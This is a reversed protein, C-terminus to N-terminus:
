LEESLFESVKVQGNMLMPLLWDRLESLKQSEIDNLIIKEIIPDILINFKTLVEHSSVHILSNTADLPSLNKQSSGTAINELRNREEKRQFLLYIFNKFIDDCLFKGVRQNLLLNEETVLCIRGVNGTLSILIDGIRLKCFDSLNIPINNTYDVSETELKLEQVNKITIIKFKGDTLYTESNFSFGSGIRSIDSIKKTIWGEPIKRKLEENWVMKGGSSKYPRGNEDPFDFQVFWYDYLTKAMKELEFNIRNNLEIKTYLLYLIDGIKVQTKYDPLYLRLYSFIKENLSARLVMVANNTITKRFLRSRLYFAMYKDYTKDNQLPRLRKVFGSFTANPYDKISVSSMGLEDLTESTRTLFIDGKKVSFTEQEELSSDMLDNLANPLFYNNFVTSFSVFPSGHGAQNPSSSIGSSMKYLENFKFWKYNSM